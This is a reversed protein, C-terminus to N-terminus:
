YQLHIDGDSGGTPTSTSITIARTAISGIGLATRAATATSSGTGGKAVELTGSVGMNSISENLRTSTITDGNNWTYGSTFSLPM